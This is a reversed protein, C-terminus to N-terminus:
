LLISVFYIVTGEGIIQCLGFEDLQQDFELIHDRNSPVNVTKITSPRETANKITEITFGNKPQLFAVIAEFVKRNISTYERSPYSLKERILLERFSMLKNKFEYFMDGVFCCHVLNDKVDLLTFVASIKRNKLLQDFMLEFDREATFSHLGYIFMKFIGTEMQCISHDRIKRVIVGEKFDMVGNIDLFQLVPVEDSRRIFKLVARQWPKGTKKMAYIVNPMIETENPSRFVDNKLKESINTTQDTIRARKCIILGNQGYRLPVINEQFM